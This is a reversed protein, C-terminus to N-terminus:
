YFSVAFLFDIKGQIEDLRIDSETRLGSIHVLVVQITFDTGERGSRVEFFLIQSKKENVM